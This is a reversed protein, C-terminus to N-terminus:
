IFNSSCCIFNYVITDKQKKIYFPLQPVSRTRFSKSSNCRRIISASMADKDTIVNCISNAKLIYSSPYTFYTLSAQHPIKILVSLYAGSFGPIIKTPVLHSKSACFLRITVVSCPSTYLILTIMKALTYLFKCRFISNGEKFSTSLIINSNLISYLRKYQINNSRSPLNYYSTLHLTYLQHRNQFFIATQNAWLPESLSPITVASQSALQDSHLSFSQYMLIILSSLFHYCTLIHQVIIENFYFYTFFTIM